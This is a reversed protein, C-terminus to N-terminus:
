KKIIKTISTAGNMNTTKVFYVGNNLSETNVTVNASGAEQTMVRQGIVNLIEVSAINSQAKINLTNRVPNPYISTAATLNHVGTTGTVVVDDVQWTTTADPDGGTYKFAIFATEGDYASLDIDGSPTWTGYGNSPASPEDFALETWTASLVDSGDYDTSIWLSWVEANQYGANSRFSLLSTADMTVGPTVLWAVNAAEGSNYASMQAYNNDEDAFYKGIFIRTGEEAYNTWGEIAIDENNAVAGDEFDENVQAFLSLSFVSVFVFLLLKKM